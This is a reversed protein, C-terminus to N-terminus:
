QSKFDQNNLYKTAKGYKITPLFLFYVFASIITIAAISSFLIKWRNKQKRKQDREREEKITNIRENYEELNKQLNTINITSFQRDKRIGCRCCHAGIKRNPRGCTCLWYDDEQQPFYRFTDVKEAPFNDKERELQELLELSLTNLNRQKPPLIERNNNEWITGNVFVVRGIAVNVKRVKPDLVIATRDGFTKKALIYIDRFTYYYPCFGEIEDGADDFGNISFRVSSVLKINDILINIKLQLIVSKTENDLLLAGKEIEVPANLNFSNLILEQLRFYREKPM